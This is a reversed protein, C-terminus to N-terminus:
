EPGSLWKLQMGELVPIAEVGSQIFHREVKGQYSIEVVWRTKPNPSTKWILTADESGNLDQPTLPEVIVKKDPILNRLWPPSVLKMTWEGFPVQQLNPQNDLRGYTNFPELSAHILKTQPSPHWEYSLIKSSLNLDTKPQSFFDAWSKSLRQGKEIHVVVPRSRPDDAKLIYDGAPMLIAFPGYWNKTYTKSQATFQIGSPSGLIELISDSLPNSDANLPNNKKDQSVKSSHTTQPSKDRINEKNPSALANQQISAMIETLKQQLQFGESASVFEIQIQSLKLNKFCQFKESEKSIDYGILVLKIKKGAQKLRENAMTLEKCPDQQCSDAGDTIAILHHVKNKIAYDVGKKLTKALPTQGFKDPKLESLIRPFNKTSGELVKIDDCSKTIDTGFIMVTSLSAPDAASVIGNVNQYVTKYKVSQDFTQYMSGSYDLLFLFLIEKM